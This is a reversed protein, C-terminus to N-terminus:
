CHVTRVSLCGILLKVLLPMDPLVEKGRLIGTRAYDMRKQQASSQQRQYEGTGNGDARAEENEQEPSSKEREDSLKDNSSSTPSNEPEVVIEQDKAQGAVTGAEEVSFNQNLIEVSSGTPHLSIDSKSMDPPALKNPANSLENTVPATQATSDSSWSDVRVTAGFIGSVMQLPNPNDTSTTSIVCTRRLLQYALQFWLSMSQCLMCDNSSESHNGQHEGGWKTNLMLALLKNISDSEDSDFPM